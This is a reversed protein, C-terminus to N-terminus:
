STALDILLEFDILFPDCRFGSILFAEISGSSSCSICKVNSENKLPLRISNVAKLSDAHQKSGDKVMYPVFLYEKNPPLKGLSVLFPPM